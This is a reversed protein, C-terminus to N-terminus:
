ETNEKRQETRSNKEHLEELERDMLAIKQIMNKNDEALKSIHVSFQLCILVVSILGFFFLVSTPLVAGVMKTLSVLARYDISFFLIVFGVLLWLWTYEEKLKKERVLYIIAFLISFSITLVMIKQKIPM